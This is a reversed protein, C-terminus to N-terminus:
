EIEEYEEGEAIINSVPSESRLSEFSLWLGLALLVFAALTRLPWRIGQHAITVNETYEFANIEMKGSDVAWRAYGVVGGPPFEDALYGRFARTAEARIDGVADNDKSKAAGPQNSLPLHRM